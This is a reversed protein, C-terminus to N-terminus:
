FTGSIGLGYTGAPGGTLQFSATSRDDDSNHSKSDAKPPLGILNRTWDRTQRGFATIEPSFYGLTLGTATGALGLAMPAGLNQNGKWEVGEPLKDEFPKPLKKPQMLYIYSGTEILQATGALALPTFEQWNGTQVGKRLHAGASMGTLANFGTDGLTTGWYFTDMMPNATYEGSSPDIGYQEDNAAAFMAVAHPVATSTGLQGMGMSLSRRLTPDDGAAYAAGFGLVQSGFSLAHTSGHFNKDGDAADLILGATPFTLGALHLGLHDKLSDNGYMNNIAVHYGFSSNLMLSTEFGGILYQPGKFQAMLASSSNVKESGQSAAALLQGLEDESLDEGYQERLISLLSQQCVYDCGSEYTTEILYQIMAESYQNGTADMVYDVLTSDVQYQFDFKYKDSTQRLRLGALVSQAGHYGMYSYNLPKNTGTYQLMHKTRSTAAVPRMVDSALGGVTQVTGLTTRGGALNSLFEIESNTQAGDVIPTNLVQDQVIDNLALNLGSAGLEAGRVYTEQMPSLKNHSNNHVIPIQPAFMAPAEGFHSARLGFRGLNYTTDLAVGTYLNWGGYHSTSDRHDTSNTSATNGNPEHDIHQTSEPLSSSTVNTNTDITSGM